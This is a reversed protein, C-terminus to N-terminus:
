IVKSQIIFIISIVLLNFERHIKGM